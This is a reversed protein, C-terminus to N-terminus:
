NMWGITWEGMCRNMEEDVGNYMLENQWCENMWEHLCENIWGCMCEDM